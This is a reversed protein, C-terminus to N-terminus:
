AASPQLDPRRALIGVLVLTVVIQALVLTVVLLPRGALYQEPGPVAASFFSLNALNFLVIVALLGRSGRYVRWCFIGYIMEVVFAALPASDYLGLGLKPSALGPWLAIDHAHTLLDLILHSAIGLGM